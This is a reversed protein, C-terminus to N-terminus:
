MPESAFVSSQENRKREARLLADTLSQGHDTSEYGDMKELHALKALVFIVTGSIHVQGHSFNVTATCNNENNINM